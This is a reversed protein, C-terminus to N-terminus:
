VAEEIAPSEVDAEELETTEIEHLCAQVADYTSVFTYKEGVLKMIGSDVLKKMVTINPNCLCM